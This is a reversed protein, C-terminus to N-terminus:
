EAHRWREKRIIRSVTSQRVKYDAAIVSHFEGSAARRRIDYIDRLALKSQPLMEGWPVRGKKVKDVANDTRTGLFLHDPNVCRRIDCKHLVCMGDQIQGNRLEWSFVHARLMAQKGDQKAQLQGYGQSTSALWIWCGYKSKQVKEWFRDEIPRKKYVRM